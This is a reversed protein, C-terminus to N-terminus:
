DDHRGAIVSCAFAAGPTAAAVGARSYFRGQASRIDEEAGAGVKRKWCRKHKNTLNNTRQMYLQDSSNNLRNETYKRKKGTSEEIPLLPPPAMIMGQM